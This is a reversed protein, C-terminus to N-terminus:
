PRGQGAANVLKAIRGGPGVAWGADPGAFGASWYNLTDIRTWTRGEDISFDSGTPAVAILTPSATGPVYAAGFASGTLRTAGVM